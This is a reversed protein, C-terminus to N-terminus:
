QADGKLARLAIAAGLITGIFLLLLTFRVGTGWRRDLTHGLIAGGTSLLVIPWGVSGILGLSRWLRGGPARRQFRDVDRRTARRADERRSQRDPTRAM